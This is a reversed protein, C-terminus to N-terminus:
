DRLILSFCFCVWFFGLVFMSGFVAQVGYVGYVGGLFQSWARYIPSIIGNWRSLSSRFDWHGTSDGLVGLGM